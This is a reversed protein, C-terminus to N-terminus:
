TSIYWLGPKFDSEGESNGKASMWYKVRCHASFPAKPCLQSMIIWGCLCTYNQMVLWPCKKSIQSIKLCLSFFPAPYIYHVLYCIPLSTQCLKIRMCLYKCACVVAVNKLCMATLSDLQWHSPATGFHKLVARLTETKSGDMSFLLRM